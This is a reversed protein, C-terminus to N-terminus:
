PRAVSRDGKWWKWIDPFDFALSIVDLLLLIWLFTKFAPDLPGGIMVAVIVVLPTWLLVHPLSMLKSLGREVVMIPLNLAMGGIALVTILAGNPQGWFALTALNIPMLLVVIWIQVWLPIARFSRWIDLFIM